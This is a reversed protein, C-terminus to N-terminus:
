RLSSFPHSLSFQNFWISASFSDVTSLSHAPAYGGIHTLKYKPNLPLPIPTRALKKWDQKFQKQWCLLERYWEKDNMAQDLKRYYSPALKVILIWVLLDLRPKHFHHLIYAICKSECWAGVPAHYKTYVLPQLITINLISTCYIVYHPDMHVTCYTVGTCCTWACISMLRTRHITGYVPTFLTETISVGILSTSYVECLFDRKIQQWSGADYTM